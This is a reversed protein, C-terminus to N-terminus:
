LRCSGTDTTSDAGTTGGSSSSSDPSTTDASAVGPSTAVLLGIGLAAALAGVRGIHRSYASAHQTAKNMNDVSSHSATM